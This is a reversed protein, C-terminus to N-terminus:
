SDWCNNDKDILCDVTASPPKEDLPAVKFTPAKPLWKSRWIDIQSGDGVRWMSVEEVVLKGILLSAWSFSVIAKLLLIFRFGQFISRELFM